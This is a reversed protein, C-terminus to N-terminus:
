CDRYIDDMIQNIDMTSEDHLASTAGGSLPATEGSEPEDSPPAEDFPLVQECAQDYSELDTKAPTPAHVSPKSQRSATAPRKGKYSAKEQNQLAMYTACEVAALSLPQKEDDRIM